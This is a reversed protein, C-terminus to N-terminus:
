EGRKGGNVIKQLRSVESSLKRIKENAERWQSILLVCEWAELEVKYDCGQSWWEIKQLPIFGSKHNICNFSCNDGYANNYKCLM